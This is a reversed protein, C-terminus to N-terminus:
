CRGEFAEIAKENSLGLACQRNPVVQQRGDQDQIGVAPAFYWNGKMSVATSLSRGWILWRERKGSSEKDGTSSWRERFSILPRRM